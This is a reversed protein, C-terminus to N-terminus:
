LPRLSFLGVPLRLEGFWKEINGDPNRLPLARGLFWRWHGEKGRCRYETAFPEGTKFSHAWRKMTGVVDDPHVTNRWGLGM